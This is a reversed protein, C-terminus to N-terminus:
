RFLIMFEGGFFRGIVGVFHPPPIGKVVAVCEGVVLGDVKIFMMHEWYEGGGVIFSVM